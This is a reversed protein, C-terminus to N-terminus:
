NGRETRIWARERRFLFAAYLPIKGLVYGPVSLFTGLPFASRCHVMWGLLTASFFLSLAGSAIALPWLSIGPIALLAALMWGGTLALALLALPPVLLDAALVLLPWSRHAIAQRFLRPSQTLATSLFGHEWRRRQSAMGAATTPLDSTVVAEAVFQPPHGALTFDIGLQMDEVVNGSAWAVRRVLTWPLAMGSGTLHCPGGLRNLGQMRILNRFRFALASLRQASNPLSPECLYLAQVPRDHMIAASALHTLAQPGLRCDADLLVVVEPPRESPDAALQDLGFALAYGKGRREADHRQVVHLNPTKAAEERAVNATADTCNDAVVLLRDHPELQAAISRLSAAIGTQENHAPVLVAIRPRRAAPILSRGRRPWCGAVIETAYILVPLAAAIAISILLADLM